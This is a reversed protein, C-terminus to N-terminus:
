FLYEARVSLFHSLLSDQNLQPTKQRDFLFVLSRNYRFYFAINRNAIYRVGALIYLDSKQFLDVNNDFPTDTVKSSILRGYAAGLDLSIRYYTEDESLWDGITAYVPIDVYNTTINFPAGPSPNNIGTPYRSGRQSFLFETNLNWRDNLYIIGKIGGTLGVKNYGASQDGNLQAATFGAVIGANFRREQANIEGSIYFILLFLSTKLINHYITNNM